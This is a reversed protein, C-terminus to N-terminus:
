EENTKPQTPLGFIGLLTDRANTVKVEAIPKPEFYTDPEVINFAEDLWEVEDNRYSCIIADALVQGRGDKRAVMLKLVALADEASMAKLDSKLIGISMVEHPGKDDFSYTGFEKLAANLKGFAKKAFDKATQSM